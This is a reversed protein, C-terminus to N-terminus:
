NQLRLTEMEGWCVGAWWLGYFQNSEVSFFESCRHYIMWKSRHCFSADGSFHDGMVCLLHCPLCMCYARPIASKWARDWIYLFLIRQPKSGIDNLSWSSIMSIEHFNLKNHKTKTRITCYHLFNACTMVAWNPPPPPPPPPPMYLITVMIIKWTLAVFFNHIVLEDNTQSVTRVSWLM